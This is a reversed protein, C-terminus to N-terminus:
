SYEERESSIGQPLLGSFRILNPEMSCFAPEFSCAGAQLESEPDWIPLLVEGGTAASTKISMLKSTGCSRVELLMNRKQGQVFIVRPLWAESSFNGRRGKAKRGPRAVPKGQDPIFLNCAKSVCSCRQNSSIAAKWFFLGKRRNPM